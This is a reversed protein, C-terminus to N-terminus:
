VKAGVLRKYNNIVEATISRWNFNEEIAQRGNRGMQTWDQHRSLIEQIGVAIDQPYPECTVHFDNKIFYNYGCGSTVLCPKACAMGDLMALSFVESFSPLVYVDASEIADYKGQGYLPGIYDFNEACGLRQTLVLYKDANSKYNPGVLVFILDQRLALPLMAVAEILGQLNKDERLVGVWVFKIKDRYPRDEFFNRGRQDPVENLDIGNYGVFSKGRYGYTQLGTGEERTITHIETAMNLFDVEFFWKALLRKGTYAHPKSYTGHTTIIFPIDAKRLAAAIINKDYFWILHFHVLDISEKETVLREIIEHKGFPLRVRPFCEVTVFEDRKHTYHIKTDDVIAWIESDLGFLKEYKNLYYVVRSIGNHGTPNAKGHVVHIIRM